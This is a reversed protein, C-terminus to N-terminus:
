LRLGAQQIIFDLGQRVQPWDEDDQSIGADFGHSAGPVLGIETVVRQKGLDECARKSFETLVMSDADGHLFYTPSFGPKFLQVPDIREFDGDKVIAKMHTGEKLATFLWANRPVSFDPAPMGRKSRKAQAAAAKELSTVTTTQTPEDHIKDIFDRPFPPIMALAPLPTFWFLESTYKVGYFDLIAVPPEPLAGQHPSGDTVQKWHSRNLTLFYHRHSVLHLALLGGASQGFAVIKQM